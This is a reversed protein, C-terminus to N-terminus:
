VVVMDDVVMVGWMEVVGGGAANVGIGVGATGGFAGAAFVLFVPFLALAM